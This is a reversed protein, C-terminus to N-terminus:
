KEAAEKKNDEIGIIGKEAGTAKMILQLGSIVKEEKEVMVRHDATLYPECECGNLIVTDVNKDEPPTIKVHTPFGAGGLGVIGADRCRQRIEAASVSDLTEFPSMYQTEKNEPDTKIIICDSNEGNPLLRKEINKVKGCAPAHINASVFTKGKGILQGKKVEERKEVVPEAPAGIHQKLPVALEGALPFPKVRATSTAEKKDHPHVGGKFGPLLNFLGM